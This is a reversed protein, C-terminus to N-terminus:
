LRLFLLYMKLDRICKQPIALYRIAPYSFRNRISDHCVLQNVGRIYIYIYIYKDNEVMKIPEEEKASLPPPRM